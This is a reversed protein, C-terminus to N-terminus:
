KKNRVANKILSSQVSSSPSIAKRIKFLNWATGIAHGAAAFADETAQGASEGYRKTVAGSVADSTAALTNREAVEVADLVKNVADLTALLVQGPLMALFSKGARSQVLPAAVSSTVLLVGDLLTKSMRETMESVRRARKITKNIEGPKTKKATEPRGGSVGNNSAPAQPQLLAAGKQVQSIYANSCMFIGKVLGGTGEALAKALAGNYDEIRPSYDKWDVEYASSSSTTRKFSSSSSTGSFCANEKLFMDLSPLSGHPAAFSVGYNLFGGGDDKCPLTFLYHLQDLKVVPEDKTLPWRLDPGVRVVTALAVGDETIRLVTLDGRALEVPPAATDQMLYVSANPIQLIAEEKRAARRSFSSTRPTGCCGM